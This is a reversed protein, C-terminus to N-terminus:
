NEFLTIFQWGRATLVPASNNSFSKAQLFVPEIAIQGCRNIYGWYEGDKFAALHQGFSLADEFKYDIAVEGSTNIFGWKDNKKIAAYGINSFPKADEQAEGIREGNVYLHVQSGTKVFVANQACSRGLGDMIIGDFKPQLFWNLSTDVIGWKGNHKAAAYGDSFMGFEEFLPGRTQLDGASLQWGKDTLFPIRGDSYNGFDLAEDKLLAVRNRDSDIAYIVSGEQVIARGSSFTSIKDYECPIRLSGGASAVGWLDKRRVSITGSFFETVEDFVNNGMRYEYRNKEYL